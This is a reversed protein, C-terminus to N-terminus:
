SSEEPETECRVSGASNHATKSGSATAQVHTSTTADAFTPWAHGLDLPKTTAYLSFLTCSCVNEVSTMLLPM